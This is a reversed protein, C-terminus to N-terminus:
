APVSFQLYDFPNYNFYQAIGILAALSAGTVSSIILWIFIKNNNIQIISYSIIICGTLQILEILSNKPDVSWILSLWAWGLFAIVAIFPPQPIRPLNSEALKKILIISFIFGSSIGYIAYRPLSSFDRISDIYILPLIFLLISILLAPSNQITQKLVINM